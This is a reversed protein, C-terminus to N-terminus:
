SPLAKRIAWMPWVLAGITSPVSPAMSIARLASFIGCPEPPTLAAMSLRASATGAYLSVRYRPKTVDDRGTDKATGHATGRLASCQARSSTSFHQRCRYASQLRGYTLTTMGTRPAARM